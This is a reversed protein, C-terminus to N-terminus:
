KIWKYNGKRNVNGREQFSYSKESSRKDFCRKSNKKDFTKMPYCKISIDIGYIKSIRTIEKTDCEGAVFINL